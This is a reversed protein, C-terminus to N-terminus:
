LFSMSLYSKPRAPTLIVLGRKKEDIRHNNTATGGPEVSKTSSTWEADLPQM